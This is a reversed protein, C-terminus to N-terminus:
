VGGPHTNGSTVYVRGPPYRPPALQRGRPRVARRRDVDYLHGEYAGGSDFVDVRARPQEAGDPQPDDLVYVDGSVRDVAVAADRLSTFGGPPGAIEQVPNAADTAPDYVKVTDDAADPVYLFGATGSYGSVAIGYGEDLTGCRRHGCRAAAEYEDVPRRLISSLRPRRRPDM